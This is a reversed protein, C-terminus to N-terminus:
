RRRGGVEEYFVRLLFEKGQEPDPYRSQAILRKGQELIQEPQALVQEALELSIAREEAQALAHPLYEINVPM